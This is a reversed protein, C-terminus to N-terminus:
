KVIANEIFEISKKREADLIQNTIDFNCDQIQLVDNNEEYILRNELQVLELFSEIRSSFDKPCVSFFQKNLNASFVTGHFSSVLIFDAQLMLNIFRQPSSFSFLRDCCPIKESFWGATVQYIKLNRQKAIKLAYENILNKRNKEVSYILLYSEKKVFTDQLAFNEWNEKTFLLTPDLVYTVNSVGIQNLLSVASLERVSLHNYKLLLERTLEMEEQPFSKLGISAAYSIRKKNAPAFDLFYSKDVGNNYSSNWVQDSGTIYIDALPIQKQLDNYSHYTIQTLNLNKKVFQRLRYKAIPHIALRYGASFIRYIVSLSKDTMVKKVSFNWISQQPRRYDIYEVAIGQKKLIESLTYAQLYTGINQCDLITIVSAKKM